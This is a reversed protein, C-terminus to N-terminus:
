DLSKDLMRHIFVRKTQFLKQSRQLNFGLLRSRNLESLSHCGVLYICVVAYPSSVGRELPRVETGDLGVHTLVRRGEGGSRFSRIDMLATKYVTSICTFFLSSYL